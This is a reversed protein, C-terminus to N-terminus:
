RAWCWSNVLPAARRSLATLLCPLLVYEADTCVFVGDSNKVLRSLESESLKSEDEVPTIANPHGEPYGATSICFYDGHHKRIYRNDSPPIHTTAFSHACSVCIAHVCARVCV